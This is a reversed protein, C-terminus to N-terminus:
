DAKWRPNTKSRWLPQHFFIASQWASSSWGNQVSIGIADFENGYGISVSSIRDVLTKQLQADPVNRGSVQIDNRVASVGKVKHAIKDADAKYEYEGSIRSSLTAVGNADVNM